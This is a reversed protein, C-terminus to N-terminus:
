SSMARRFRRLALQQSLCFTACRAAPDLRMANQFWHSSCHCHCISIISIACHCNCLDEPYNQNQFSGDCGRRTTSGLSLSNCRNKFGMGTFFFPDKSGDTFTNWPFPSRDGKQFQDKWVKLMKWGDSQLLFAAKQAKSGLTQWSRPGELTQSVVSLHAALIAFSLQLKPLRFFVLRSYGVIIVDLHELRYLRFMSRFELGIDIELKLKCWSM